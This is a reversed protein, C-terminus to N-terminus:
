ADEFVVNISVQTHTHVASFQVKMKNFTTSPSEGEYTKGWDTPVGGSNIVYNWNPSYGMMWVQMPVNTRVWLVQSGGSVSISQYWDWPGQGVTSFDQDIQLYDKTGPTLVAKPVHNMETAVTMFSGGPPSLNLNASSLNHYTTTWPM